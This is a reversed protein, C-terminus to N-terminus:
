RQAPSNRMAWIWFSAESEYLYQEEQTIVLFEELSGPKYGGTEALKDMSANIVEEIKEPEVDQLAFFIKCEPNVQFLQKLYGAATKLDDLKYYLVALPLLFMTCNEEEYQRYLRQAAADEELYAYIHMLRYRIGLNDNECLQLMKESEAAAKRFKRTVILSDVYSNYLRMYPRTEAILWFDGISEDEWIGDNKLNKEEKELIKLYKKQLDDESKAQCQAILTEAEVNRPNNKLSRKAYKLTEAKSEADYARQLDEDMDELAEQMLFDMGREDMFRDFAEEHQKQSIPGTLGNEVLYDKFAEEMTKAKKM